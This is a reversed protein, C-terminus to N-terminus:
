NENEYNLVIENPDKYIKKLILTTIIVLTLGHILISITSGFGFILGNILDFGEAFQESFFIKFIKLFVLQSIASYILIIIFSLITTIAFNKIKKSVILTVNFVFISYIITITCARLLILLSNYMPGETTLNIGVGKTPFVIFCIIYTIILFVPYLFFSSFWTKSLYKKKINNFTERQIMNKIMGSHYFDHNKKCSLILILTSVVLFTSSTHVYLGFWVYDFAAREMGLANPYESNIHLLVVIISAVMSIMMFCIYKKSNKM